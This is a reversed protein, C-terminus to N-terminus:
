ESGVVTSRRGAKRRMSFTVGAVTGVRRVEMMETAGVVEEGSVGKEMGAERGAGRGSPVGAARFSRVVRAHGCLASM